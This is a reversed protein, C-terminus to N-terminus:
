IYRPDFLSKLTAKKGHSRCLHLCGVQLHIKSEHTKTSDMKQILLVITTKMVAFPSKKLTWCLAFLISCIFLAQLHLM